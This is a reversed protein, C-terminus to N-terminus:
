QHQILSLHVCFEEAQDRLLSPSQADLRLTLESAPELMHDPSELRADSVPRSLSVDESREQVVDESELSEVAAESESESSEVVVAELESSEVVAESESESSEVVVAEEELELESSEM